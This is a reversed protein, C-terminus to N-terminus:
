RLSSQGWFCSIVLNLPNSFDFLTGYTRCTTVYYRRYTNYSQIIIYVLLMKVIRSAIFILLWKTIICNIWKKVKKMQNRKANVFLKCLKVFSTFSISCHNKVNPLQRGVLCFLVCHPSGYIVLMTIYCWNQRGVQQPVSIYPLSEWGPHQPVCISRISPNIRLRLIM